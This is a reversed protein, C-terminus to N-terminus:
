NSKQRFYILASYITIIVTAGLLSGIMLWFNIPAALFASLIGLMGAAVFVPGGLRHTNRWTEESALTWPTRIGVFYNPQIRPLFIGIAVFLLSVAVPVVMSINIEHGLAAATTVVYLLIMFLVLGARVARYATSFRPYNARRPDVLPLLLMGAYIGATLLPIGFAGAFRSGYGDIEGKINWHMPVREPLQPYVVFAAALLGLLILLIFWDKRLNENLRYESKNEM